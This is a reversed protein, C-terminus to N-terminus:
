PNQLFVYLIALLLCLVLFTIFSIFYVLISKFLGRISKLTYVSMWFYISFVFFLYGDFEVIFTTDFIFAALNTVISFVNIVSYMFANIVLNETLNYGNNKFFLFSFLAYFLVLIFIYNDYNEKILTQFTHMLEISEQRDLKLQELETLQLQSQVETQNQFTTDNIAQINKIKLNITENFGEEVDSYFYDFKSNSNILTLTMFVSLATSFVLFRIPNVLKTRDKKLYDEIVVRPSLILAKISFLIGKEFNLISLIHSILSKFTIKKLSYGEEFENPVDQNSGNELPVLNEDLNDETM